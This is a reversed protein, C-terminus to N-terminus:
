CRNACLNCSQAPIHGPRHLVKLLDATSGQLSHRRVSAVPSALANNGKGHM